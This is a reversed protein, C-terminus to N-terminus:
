PWSIVGAHGVAVLLGADVLADIIREATRRRMHLSSRLIAVLMELDTPHEREVERLLNEVYFAALAYVRRSALDYCPADLDHLFHSACAAVGEDRALIYSVSTQRSIRANDAGQRQGAPPRTGKPGCM